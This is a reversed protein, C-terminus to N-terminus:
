ETRMARMPDITMARRGPVWSAVLSVLVIIITVAVLTAPDSPTVDVFLARMLRSALAAGFTGLALGIGALRVCEAVVLWLVRGPPAGLAIRLGIEFSRETVGYSIIGYIGIGALVLALGAFGALLQTCFRRTAVSASVVKQMSQVRALSAAPELQRVIARVAAALAVPNGATKIVLTMDPPAYYASLDAQAHPFFMTPLPETLFGGQRVDRVVGVVTAWPATPSLM